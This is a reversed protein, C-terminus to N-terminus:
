RKMRTTSKSTFLPQPPPHFSLAPAKVTEVRAFLCVHPFILLVKVLRSVKRTLSNAAFSDHKLVSYPLLPFINIFSPTPFISRDYRVFSATM